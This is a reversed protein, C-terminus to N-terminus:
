TDKNNQREESQELAELRPIIDAQETLKIAYELITRCATLRAQPPNEENSMIDTVTTTAEAIQAQLYATSQALLDTKAQNYKKKFDSKRLYSYITSEPIKLAQATERITPYMLLANIILDAKNNQM